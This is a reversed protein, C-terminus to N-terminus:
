SYRGSRYKKDKTRSKRFEKGTAGAKKTAKKWAKTSARKKARSKTPTSFFGM